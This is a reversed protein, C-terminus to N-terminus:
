LFNHSRKATCLAGVRILPQTLGLIEETLQNHLRSTIKFFGIMIIAAAMITAAGAKAAKGGFISSSGAETPLFSLEDSEDPNSKACACAGPRGSV